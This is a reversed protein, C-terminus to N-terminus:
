RPLLRRPFEQTRLGIGILGLLLVAGFLRSSEAHLADYRIRRPDSKDITNFPAGFSAQTAIMSPVVARQSYAILALMVVICAARAVAAASHTVAVSVLSSALAITGCAYGLLTLGALSGGVISAFADLEASLRAFAAPAFVFAFGALSGIWLALALQEAVALARLMM